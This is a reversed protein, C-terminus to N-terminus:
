EKPKKAIFSVDKYTKGLLYAVVASFIPLGADSSIIKNLMLLVLIVVALVGFLIQGSTHLSSLLMQAMSIPSSSGQFISKAAISISIAHIILILVAIALGIIIVLNNM